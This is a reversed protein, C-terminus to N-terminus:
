TPTMLIIIATTTVSDDQPQYEVEEKEQEDGHMDVHMSRFPLYHHTVPLAPQLIKSYLTNLKVWKVCLSCFVDNVVVFTSWWGFQSSIAQVQLHWKCVCVQTRLDFRAGGALAVM